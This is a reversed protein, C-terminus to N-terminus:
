IGVTVPEEGSQMGAEAEAEAMFQARTDAGIVPLEAISAVGFCRLFQETTGLLIPKGPADKRGVECILDFELLRNVAHDCSVGRIKEIEAKTVPQKYAVISLTELLSETLNYKRPAKVIKTLEEYYESRSCMQYSGELETITLGSGREEYEKKLTELLKKTKKEDEEIVEALRALEVSEGVAFLVAELIAKNKETKTM